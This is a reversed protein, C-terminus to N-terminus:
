RILPSECPRPYPESVSESVARYAQSDGLGTPEIFPLCGVIGSRRLCFEANASVEKRIVQCATAPFGVERGTEFFYDKVHRSGREKWSIESEYRKRFGSSM